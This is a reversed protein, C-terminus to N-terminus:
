VNVFTKQSTQKKSTLDVVTAKGEREKVRLGKALKEIDHNYENAVRDKIKWLEELIENKM